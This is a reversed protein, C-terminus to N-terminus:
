DREEERGGKRRDRRREGEGEKGKEKRCGKRIDLLTFTIIMNVTVYKSVFYPCYLFRINCIELDKSLILFDRCVCVYM